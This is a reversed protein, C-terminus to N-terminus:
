AVNSLYTRWDTFLKRYFLMTCIVRYIFIYMDYSCFIVEEKAHHVSGAFFGTGKWTQIGGKEAKM